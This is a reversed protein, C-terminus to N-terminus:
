RGHHDKSTMKSASGQIDDSPHNSQIRLWNIPLLDGLRDKERGCANRREEVTAAVYQDGSSEACHGSIGRYGWIRIQNDKYGELVAPRWADEAVSAGLQHKTADRTQHGDHPAPSSPAQVPNFRPASRLGYRGCKGDCKVKRKRCVLCGAQVHYTPYHAHYEAKALDALTWYYRKVDETEDKWMEAILKSSDRRPASPETRKLTKMKDSRYLIWANPPRRPRNASQNSMGSPLRTPQKVLDAHDSENQLYPQVIRLSAPTSSTSITPQAWPQETRVPTRFSTGPSPPNHSFANHPVPDPINYYRSFLKGLTSRGPDTRFAAPPLPTTQAAIHQHGSSDFRQGDFSFLTM